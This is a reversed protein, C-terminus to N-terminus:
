PGGVVCGREFARLSARTLRKALRSRATTRTWWSQPEAARLADLEARLGKIEERIGQIDDYGFPNM